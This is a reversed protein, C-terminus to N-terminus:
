REISIYIKLNTNKGIWKRLFFNLKGLYNFVVQQVHLIFLSKQKSTYVMKFRISYFIHVMHVNRTSFGWWHDKALVFYNWFTPFHQGLLTKILQLWFHYHLLGVFNSNWDIKVRLIKISEFVSRILWLRSYFKAVHARLSESTWCCHCESQLCPIKAHPYIQIQTKQLKM